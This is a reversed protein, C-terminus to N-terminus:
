FSVTNRRYFMTLHQYLASIKCLLDYIVHAPVNQALNVQRVLRSNQRLNLYTLKDSFIIFNSYLGM